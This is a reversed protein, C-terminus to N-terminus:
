AWKKQGAHGLVTALVHQAACPRGLALARARMAALKGPDALLQAIRYQLAVHDFAALAVGQELLYDANREEQGPIAAHLLMPLGLALCEASTLGGPKSVILDACGMMTAIRETHGSAVLRGPYRMSLAQLGALARNNRGAVAILQMREVSALLHAATSDLKGLGAGGGMLLVIPRSGDLGLAQACAARDQSDAFAPMVPIGTVHIRQPAVGYAHVRLAVDDNAAFYGSIHDQVWLRHLGFDTLQVWVPCDLRGRAITASLIEAPLFHTCVIADPQFQAIERLLARMNLHEFARRLKHQASAPRAEQTVQYLHSWWAPRRNLLAIYLDTRLLRFGAPVYAMVDLHRAVVGDARQGAAALLAQAARTHGSGASVSLLLIRPVAM